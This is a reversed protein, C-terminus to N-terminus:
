REEAKSQLDGTVGHVQCLRGQRRIQIQNLAAVHVHLPGVYRQVHYARLGSYLPLLLTSQKTHPNLLCHWSSSLAHKDRYPLLPPITVQGQVEGVHPHM